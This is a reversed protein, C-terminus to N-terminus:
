ASLPVEIPISVVTFPVKQGLELYSGFTKMLFWLNCKIRNNNDIGGYRLSLWIEKGRDTLEVEVQEYIGVELNIIM